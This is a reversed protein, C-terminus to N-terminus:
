YNKKKKIKKLRLKKFFYYYELQKNVKKNLINSYLM